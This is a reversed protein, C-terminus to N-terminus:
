RAWGAGPAAPAGRGPCWFNLGALRPEWRLGSRGQRLAERFEPVGTGNPAVVGLGTVVVRNMYTSGNRRNRRGRGARRKGQADGRWVKNAAPAMDAGRREGSGDRRSVRERAMRHLCRDVIDPPDEGPLPKGRAVASVIRAACGRVRGLM